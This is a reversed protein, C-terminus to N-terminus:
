GSLTRVLEIPQVRLLRQLSAYVAIFSLGLTLALSAAYSTANLNGMQFLGTAGSALVALVSGLLLGCIVLLSSEMLFHTTIDRRKAGLARRIAIQVKRRGIWYSTLGLVGCLSTLVVAVVTVGLGISVSRDAKFYDSRINPYARMTWNIRGSTSGNLNALIGELARPKDSTRVLVSSSSADQKFGPLILTYYTEPQGTFQTGALPECVGVVVLEAGNLFIREGISNQEHFLRKELAQSLIAIKADAGNEVRRKIVESTLFSRGRIIHVHLTGIFKDDGYYVSAPVRSTSDTGVSGTENNSGMFPVASAIAVDPSNARFRDAAETLDVQNVGSVVAEPSIVYLGNEAIGSSLGIIRSRQYAISSASLIISFTVAYELVLISALLRHSRWLSRFLSIFVSM